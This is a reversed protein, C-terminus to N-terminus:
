SALNVENRLWQKVFFTFTGLISGPFETDTALFKQGSSWLSLWYFMLGVNLIDEESSVLGRLQFSYKYLSVKCSGCPSNTQFVESTHESSVKRQVIVRLLPRANLIARGLNDDNNIPLLDGDSPDTYSILFPVDALHHLREVLEKFDEYKGTSDRTVSFRRFEADFKSKVEVTGSDTKHQTKLNKSM